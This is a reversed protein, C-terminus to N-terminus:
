NNTDIFTCSKFDCKTEFTQVVSVHITRPDCKYDKSEIAINMIANKDPVITLNGNETIVIISKIKEKSLDM